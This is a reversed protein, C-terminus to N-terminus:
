EMSCAGLQSKLNVPDGTTGFIDDSIQAASEPRVLGGSDTVRVVLIPKEGVHNGYGTQLSRRDFFNNRNGNNWNKGRGNGDKGVGKDVRAVVDLGPPLRVEQEDFKVGM